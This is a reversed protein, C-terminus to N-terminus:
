QSASSPAHPQLRRRGRRKCRPWLVRWSQGTARLTSAANAGPTTM